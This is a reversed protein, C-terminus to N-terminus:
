RVARHMNQKLKNRFEPSMSLALAGHDLRPRGISKFELLVIHDFTGSKTKATLLAHVALNMGTM